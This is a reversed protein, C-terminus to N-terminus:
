LLETIDFSSTTNFITLVFESVEDKNFTTPIIIYSGDELDLRKTVQRNNIFQGSKEYERNAQLYELDLRQINIASKSTNVSNNGNDINLKYIFFAIQYLKQKYNGDPQRYDQTLSIIVDSNSSKIKNKIKFL